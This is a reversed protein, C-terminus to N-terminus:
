RRLDKTKAPPHMYLGTPIIWPYCWDTPFFPKKGNHLFWLPNASSWFLYPRSLLFLWEQTNTKMIPTQYFYDLREGTKYKTSSLVFVLFNANCNHVKIRGASHYVWIVGAQWLILLQYIIERVTSHMLHPTGRLAKPIHFFHIGPVLAAFNWSSSVTKLSLGSHAKTHDRICLYVCRCSVQTM